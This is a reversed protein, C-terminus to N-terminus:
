PAGSNELANQSLNWNYETKQGLVLSDVKALDADEICNIVSLFRSGIRPVVKIGDLCFYARFSYHLTELRECIERNV